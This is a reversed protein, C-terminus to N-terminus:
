EGYSRLLEWSQSVVVGNRTGFTANLGFDQADLMERDPMPRTSAISVGTGFVFALGDLNESTVTGTSKSRCSAPVRLTLTGTFGYAPPDNLVDLTGTFGEAATPFVTPMGAKTCVRSSNEFRWEDVFVASEDSLLNFSASGSDSFEKLFRLKAAATMVITDGGNTAKARVRLNGVYGDFAVIRVTTLVVTKAFDDVDPVEVSVTVTDPSPVKEPATFVATAGKGVVTGLTANGGRTGNVSWNEALLNSTRTCEAISLGFLTDGTVPDPYQKARCAKLYLQLQKSTRVEANAPVVQLGKLQTWDSFTTTTVTLTRKAMDVTPTLLRWTGGPRQTAIRFSSPTTGVLDSELFRFTLTVPKALQVAAPKSLRFGTGFGGPATNTIPQASFMTGDPVTGAEVTITLMGDTTVLAGGAAGIVATTADDVPVGVPTVAAKDPLETLTIPKLGPGPSTGPPGCAVFSVGLWVVALAKLSSSGSRM